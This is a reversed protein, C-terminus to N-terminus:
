VKAVTKDEGLHGELAGAHLEQLIENQLVRPVVYQTWSREGGISEYKQKLLGQKTSLQNWLEVLCRVEPLLPQVLVSVRKLQLMTFDM